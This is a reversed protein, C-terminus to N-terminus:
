RFDRRYKAAYEEDYIEQSSYLFICDGTRDFIFIDNIEETKKLYSNLPTEVFNDQTKELKPMILFGEKRKGDM